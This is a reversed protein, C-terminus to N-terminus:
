QNRIRDTKHFRVCSCEVHPMTIVRNIKGHSVTQDRPQFRKNLNGSVRVIELKNGSPTRTIRLRTRPQPHFDSAAVSKELEGLTAMLVFDIALTVVGEAM